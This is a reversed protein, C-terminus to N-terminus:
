VRCLSFGEWKPRREVSKNILQVLKECISLRTIDYFCVGTLSLEQCPLCELNRKFIIRVLSSSSKGLKKDHYSTTRVESIDCFLSSIVSKNVEPREKHRIIFM